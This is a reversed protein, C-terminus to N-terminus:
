KGEGESESIRSLQGAERGRGVDYCRGGWGRQQLPVPVCVLASVKRLGHPTGAGSRQPQGPPLTLWPSCLKNQVEIPSDERKEQM